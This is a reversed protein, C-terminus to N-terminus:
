FIQTHIERHTKFFRERDTNVLKLFAKQIKEYKFCVCFCYIGNKEEEKKM